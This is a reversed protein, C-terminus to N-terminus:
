NNDGFNRRKDVSESKRKIIKKVIARGYIVSKLTIKKRQIEGFLYQPRTELAAHFFHM